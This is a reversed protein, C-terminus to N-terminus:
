RLYWQYRNTIGAMKGPCYWADGSHLDEQPYLGQGPTAARKEMSGASIWPNMMPKSSKATFTMM